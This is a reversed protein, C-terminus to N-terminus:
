KMSIFISLIKSTCLEHIHFQLEGPRHYNATGVIDITTLTTCLMLNRYLGYLIFVFVFPFLFYSIDPLSEPTNQNFVFLNFSTKSNSNNVILFICYTRYTYCFFTFFPHELITIGGRVFM